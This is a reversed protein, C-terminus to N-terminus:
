EIAIHAYLGHKCLYMIRFRRVFLHQSKFWSCGISLEVVQDLIFRQVFGKYTFYVKQTEFFVFLGVSFNHTSMNWYLLVSIWFLTIQRVKLRHRRLSFYLILIRCTYPKFSFLKKPPLEQFEQINEIKLHNLKQHIKILLM